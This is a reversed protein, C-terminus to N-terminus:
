YQNTSLMIIVDTLFMRFKFLLQTCKYQSYPNMNMMDSKIVPMYLQLQIQININNYVNLYLLLEVHRNDFRIHRVHIWIALVYVM